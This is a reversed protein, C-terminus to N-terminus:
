QQRSTRRVLRTATEICVIQMRGPREPTFPCVEYDGFLDTGFGAQARVEPPMIPSDGGAIGLVRQTNIRWLRFTPAGNYASLRGHVTFCAGVLESRERCSQAHAARPLLLIAAAIISAFRASL